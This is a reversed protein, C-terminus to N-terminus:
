RERWPSSRCVVCSVRKRPSPNVYEAEMSAPTRCPPLRHALTMAGSLHRQRRFQLQTGVSVALPVADMNLETLHGVLHTRPQFWVVDVFRAGCPLRDMVVVRLNGLLLDGLLLAAAPM